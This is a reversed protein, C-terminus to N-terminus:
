QQLKEGRSNSSRGTKHVELQISLNSRSFYTLVSKNYENNLETLKWLRCTKSPDVSSPSFYFWCIFIQRACSVVFENLVFEGVIRHCTYPLTIM